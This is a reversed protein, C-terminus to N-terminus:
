TTELLTKTHNERKQKNAKSVPDKQTTRVTRSSVICVQIAEFKSRDRGELTSPDFAHGM